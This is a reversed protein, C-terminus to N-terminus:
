DREDKSARSLRVTWANIRKSNRRDSNLKEKYGDRAPLRNAVDVRKRIEDLAIISEIQDSKQRAMMVSWLLLAGQVIGISM